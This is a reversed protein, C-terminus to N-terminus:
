RITDYHWIMDATTTHTTSKSTDAHRTPTHIHLVVVTYLVYWDTTPADAISVCVATIQRVGVIWQTEDTTALVVRTAVLTVLTTRAEYLLRPSRGGEVGVVGTFTLTVTRHQEVERGRSRERVPTMSSFKLKGIILACLKNQLSYLTVLKFVTRKSADSCATKFM